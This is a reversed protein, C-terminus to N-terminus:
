YKQNEMRGWLSNTWIEEKFHTKWFSM